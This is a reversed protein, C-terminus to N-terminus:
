LNFRYSRFRYGQPKLSPHVFALPLALELALTVTLLSM